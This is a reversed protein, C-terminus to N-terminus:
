MVRAGEIRRLKQRAGKLEDALVFVYLAAPGTVEQAIRDRLAIEQKVSRYKWWARRAVIGLVYCPIEPLHQIVRRALYAERVEPYRELQERLAAIAAADFGHPEFQARNTMSAREAEAERLADERQGARERYREAMAADGRSWYFEFLAGCGDLVAGADRGMVDEIMAVGREDGRRLLLEGVYFRVALHEPERELLREALADARERDGLEACLQIREWESAPPLEAAADLETLRRRQESVEAHRRQWGDRVAGMWQREFESEIAAEVSALYVQAASPGEFPEPPPPGDPTPEKWGLARLRDALAPHTDAYDTPRRWAARVWAAADGGGPPSRLAARLRRQPDAPPEPSHAVGQYLGSWFGDAQRAAVEIRVLARRATEAGVLEAAAADAEYEQARALVFSYANFYPAYWEVFRGFVLKGLLSEQAELQELLRGWTARLRYIWAGFRGHSGSLHGMEHALIARWEEPPVAQLLPLGVLLYNRYWGLVGVRPVQVIAANLEPIAMIAHVRPARLRGAVERVLAFLPPARDRTIPLGDPPPVKVWLAKLVAGIVVVLPIALKLAVGRLNTVLLITVAILFALAVLIYAYGLVALGTVRTRYARPSLSAGQELRQVLARFATADM